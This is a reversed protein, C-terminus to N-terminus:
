MLWRETVRIKDWYGNLLYEDHYKSFGDGWNITEVSVWDTIKLHNGLGGNEEACGKDYEAQKDDECCVKIMVIVIFGHTGGKVTM